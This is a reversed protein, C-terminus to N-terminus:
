ARDAQAVGGAVLADVHELAVGALHGLDAETGLAVANQRSARVLGGPHPVDVCTPPIVLM